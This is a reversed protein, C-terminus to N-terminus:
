YQLSLEIHELTEVNGDLVDQVHARSRPIPLLWVLLGIFGRRGCKGVEANLLWCFAKREWIKNVAGPVLCSRKFLVQSQEGRLRDYKSASDVDAEETTRLQKRILSATDQRDMGVLIDATCHQFCDVVGDFCNGDPVVNTAEEAEQGGFGGRVLNVSGYNNLFDGIYTVQFVAAGLSEEFTVNL